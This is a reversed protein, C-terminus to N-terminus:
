TIPPQVQTDADCHVAYLLGLPNGHEILFERRLELFTEGLVQGALFRPFFRQAWANAFVAPTRCETGIVGRAGKAMFYPLFGDYFAPSLEASECANIFVLPKGSLRVTTPADLNLSGLNISGDSLKITSADPGGKSTLGSTTAHCYFYVIQDPTAADALADILEGTTTRAVVQVCTGNSAVQEWYQRQQQVYDAHMEADIGTNFNVSVRLHPAASPIHPDLVDLKTQLPIQEIIHRMGLFCDWSLVAKSSADGLYLLSWPVPVDAALIQLKLRTDADTAVQRLYDGVLRADEGAKPHYFLNQFLRAGARALTRLAVAHAAPPIGVQTQFVLAHHEDTQGVVKLLDARAEDVVKALQAPEIPLRALASVAGWVICEYGDTARAIRLGVDRPRLVRAASLPRGVSEVKATAATAGGVSLTVDILQVFNGDRHLTVKLSCPGVRLPTISFHTKDSSGIKPVLLTRTRPSVDFDRSDLQVTLSVEEADAFLSEEEFAASGVAAPSKQTDIGIGLQYSTRVLLPDNPAHGEIEVDVWRRADPKTKGGRVAPAPVAVPAPEAAGAPLTRSGAKSRSSRARGVTKPRQAMVETLATLAVLDIGAGQLAALLQERAVPYRRFLAFIQEFAVATHEPNSRGQQILTRVLGVFAPRESDPIGNLTPLVDEVVDFRIVMAM